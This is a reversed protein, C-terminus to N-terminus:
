KLIITHDSMMASRIDKPSSQDIPKVIDYAIRLGTYLSILILFVCLAFGNNSIAIPYFHWDLPLFGLFMAGGLLGFSFGRKDPMIKALTWFTLPCSMSLAFIALYGTLTYSSCIFLGASVLLSLSATKMLGFKDSIFSGAIQGLAITLMIAWTYDKPGFSDLGCVLYSRVIMSGILLAIALTTLKGFSCPKLVTNDSKFSPDKSYQFVAILTLSTLVAIIPWVTSETPQGCGAATGFYWGVGGSALFVSLPVSKSQSHNLMEAGCGAYFLASGLGSLIVLALPHTAFGCGVAAMLCGFIALVANHNLKDALLGLPAQLGFACFNYILALMEWNAFNPSANAFYAFSCAFDLLAHALAYIIVLSM